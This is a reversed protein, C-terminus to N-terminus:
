KAEQEFAAIKEGEALRVYAKKVDARKGIVPRGGKRYSQKVKGKVTNTNVSTVTVNFQAAIAKAIREKTATKPVGFTYTGTQAQAYSQESILPIIKLEM